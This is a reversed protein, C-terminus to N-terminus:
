RRQVEISEGAALGALGRIASAALGFPSGASISDGRGIALTLPLELKTPAALGAPLAVGGALTRLLEHRLRSKGSGAPGTVM